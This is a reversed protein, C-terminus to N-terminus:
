LGQFGTEEILKWCIVAIFAFGNDTLVIWTLSRNKHKTRAENNMPNPLKQLFM